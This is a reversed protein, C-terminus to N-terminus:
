PELSKNVHSSFVGGCLFCDVWVFLFRAKRIAPPPLSGLLLCSQIVTRVFGDLPGICQGISRIRLTGTGFVRSQNHLHQPYTKARGGCVGVGVSLHMLSDPTYALLSNPQKLECKNIRWQIVSASHSSSRPGLAELLVWFSYWFYAVSTAKQSHCTGCMHCVCGPWLTGVAPM